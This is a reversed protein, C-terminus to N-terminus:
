RKALLLPRINGRDDFRWKLAWGSLKRTVGDPHRSLKELLDQALDTEGDIRPQATFTLLYATARAVPHLLDPETRHEDVLGCLIDRLGDRIGRVDHPDVGHAGFCDGIAFLATHLEMIQAKSPGKDPSADLLKQYASRCADTLVAAVKDDPHQLFGLAFLARIRIWTETRELEIFRELAHAVPAASGALLLTEIAQRRAVGANQLLAHEFLKKTPALLHDPLGQGDLFDAAEHVHRKWAQRGVDPWDNCVPVKHQIVHKLTVALWQIGRKLDPRQEAVEFENILDTLAEAVKTHDLRPDKLARQWLGMVATARERITAETNHARVFLARGVWDNKPESPPSWELPIVTALELDLSRGPYLSLKRLDEAKGLLPEIWCRLERRYPSTPKTLRVLKTIARWVRFGLPMNWLADTLPAKMIDFAYSGLTGLMILAEVNRQNPPAAGVRILQDIIRRIDDHYRDHVTRVATGTRRVRDARHAALFTSLLAAAQTLVDFENEARSALIDRTWSPPVRGSLGERNEIGRLRIALSSLGGTHKLGSPALAVILEDLKQLREDSFSGSNLMHSFASSANQPTAGIGMAKAIENQSAERSVRAMQAVVAFRILDRPEQIDAIDPSRTM